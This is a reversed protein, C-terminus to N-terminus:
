ILKGVFSVIDDLIQQLMDRDHVKSLVTIELENDVPMAFIELWNGGIGIKGHRWFDANAKAGTM